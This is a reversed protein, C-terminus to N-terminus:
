FGDGCESCEQNRVVLADVAAVGTELVMVPNAEAESIRREPDAALTSLAAVAAALGELDGAARGRWGALAKLGRVENVMERATAVDVPALRVSVDGYLEAFIGGVGVTIVPGSEADVRYGILAEGVGRVMTQILWGELKADPAHESVRAAIAERAAEVSSKDTLGLAVAGAETKHPLDVSLAKLVVPYDLDDPIPDATRLVRRSVTPVGIRDFLELGSAEDFRDALTGLDPAPVTRDRPPTWHLFARLADAMSEVSRFGPVGAQALMTLARDAQPLPCAALPVAHGACDVVPQVAREPLFQASSGIASIVAGFEGSDLLGDMVSKMVDYRAGALTVDILRGSKIEVGTAEKVSALLSPPAGRVDIGAVGLRDVAMAGGGGTTTVVAVPKDRRGVEPVRGKLLAPLELLAEFQDVRLIGLDAFFADAARDSGVLAGTHGVALDQAEPSRGLKYVVVPKGAAYAARAFAELRDPRRLTELFLLFCEVEELACAAEGIAGVDLDAENGVSVLHAFGIGRAAGRSLLTGILSGSQSLAMLGGPILDEAEWAANTTFPTRDIINAVGMSNPGLLRMGHGLATEALEAQLARGEPGTEAFGDALVTAVKVGARGAQDVAELVRETGVVIYVHDPVVPLASMDTWSKEGLVTERRPNIPYVSGTYGHKRLFRLPRAGDKKPDDSAGIIAVSRPRLLANLWAAPKSQSM